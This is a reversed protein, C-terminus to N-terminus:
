YRTKPSYFKTQNRMGQYHKQIFLKQVLSLFPGKWGGGRKLKQPVSFQQNHFTFNTEVCFPPPLTLQAFLSYLFFLSVFIMLNLSSIQM